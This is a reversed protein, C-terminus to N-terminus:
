EWANILDDPVQLIMEGLVHGYGIQRAHHMHRHPLELPNERLEELDGRVPVPDAHTYQGGAVHQELTVKGNGMDGMGEAEPVFRTEDGVEPPM